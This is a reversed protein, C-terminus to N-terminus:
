PTEKDQAGALPMNDILRATGVRAAIFARAPRDNLSRKLKLSTPHRIDLYEPEIDAAALLQMAAAKLRTIDTEGQAALQQMAKLAQSLLQAQQRQQETLYRNRSSLALGDSERGTEVGIIDVPMQLDAVMRRIITLQQWDKEGFLAIDPQVINFLINVVTLVGDFHGPRKAGCLCDPLGSAQLTIKPGNKPYLTAPNFLIDVGAEACLKADADFTRPYSDLDENPGFQLPNVYISVVVIDAAAKAKRILSMHGDHLCGMTAVLAISKRGHQSKLQRRIEATTHAVRM